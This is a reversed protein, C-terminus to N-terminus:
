PQKFLRLGRFEPYVLTLLLRDRPRAMAYPYWKGEKRYAIYTSIGDFPVLRSESHTKVPVKVYLEGTRNKSVVVSNFMPELRLERGRLDNEAMQVMRADSIGMVNKVKAIIKPDWMRLVKAFDRSLEAQVYTRIVRTAQKVDSTPLSEAQSSFALTTAFLVSLFLRLFQSPKRCIQAIM